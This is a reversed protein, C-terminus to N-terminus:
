AAPALNEPLEPPLPLRYAAQPVQVIGRLNLSARTPMDLDAIAAQIINFLLTTDYSLSTVLTQGPSAATRGIVRCAHAAPEAQDMWWCHADICALDADGDAVAALSSLHAGSILHPRLAIGKTKADQWAAGWGSHSETENLVFRHNHCDRLDTAPDDARVVWVSHYFGPQTNPLAYDFCGIRHLRDWHTTRLPLNCIQGLVLEPHTWGQACPMDHNLGEPAALGANRLGDRIGRWLRDHARLNGPRLYMPLSAIM